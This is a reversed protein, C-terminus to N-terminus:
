GLARCFPRRYQPCERLIVAVRRMVGYYRRCDYPRYGQRCIYYRLCAHFGRNTRAYRLVKRLYPLHRSCDDEEKDPRPCNVDVQYFPFKKDMECTGYAIRFFGQEGWNPGWSNKCIWCGAADDYGVVSVAHYGAVSTTNPSYVGSGYDFFDSFVKMGAVMPGTTSLSQKREAITLARKWGTIKFVPQVSTNCPQNVDQYPWDTERALGTNQAFDLAPAFNWGVDCCQGCGCFFLHAESFDDNRNPDRCVIRIRSEVTAITAFSVCAGCGAQNRIGSIWGGTRWDVSPPAAFRPTSLAVEFREAASILNGLEALEKEDARYGLMGKRQSPSLTSVDSTRKTWSPSASSGRSASKKASTKRTSKKARTKRAKKRAAM